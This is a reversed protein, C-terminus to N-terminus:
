HLVDFSLLILPFLSDLGKLCADLILLICQLLPHVSHLPLAFNCFCSRILVLVLILNLETFVKHRLLHPALIKLHFHILFHLFRVLYFLGEVRDSRLSGYSIDLFHDVFEESPLLGIGWKKQCDTIVFSVKLKQTYGSFFLPIQNLLKLNFM